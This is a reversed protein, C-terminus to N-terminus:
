LLQKEGCELHRTFEKGKVPTAALHMFHMLCHTEQKYSQALYEDKFFRKV